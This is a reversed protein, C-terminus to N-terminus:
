TTKRFVLFYGHASQASKNNVFSGTVTRIYVLQDILTFGVSEFAETVLDHNRILKGKYRSDMIKVFISSGSVLVRMLELAIGVSLTVLEDPKKWTSRENSWTKQGIPGMHTAKTGYLYPPDYVAAEFSEDQLPLSTSDGIITAKTTSDKDIGVVLIPSRKSLTGNGFTVDLLRTATPSYFRILHTLNDGSEAFLISLM